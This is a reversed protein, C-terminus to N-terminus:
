TLFKIIASLRTNGEILIVDGPELAKRIVDPAPAFFPAYRKTPKSLFRLIAASIRQKLGDFM